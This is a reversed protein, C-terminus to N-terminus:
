SIDMYLLGGYPFKIPNEIPFKIIIIITKLRNQDFITFFPDMIPRPHDWVGGPCKQFMKTNKKQFFVFFFLAHARGSTQFGIKQFDM